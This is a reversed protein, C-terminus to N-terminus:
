DGPSVPYPGDQFHRMPILLAGACVTAYDTHQPWDMKAILGKYSPFKKGTLYPHHDYGATDMLIKAGLAAMAAREKREKQERTSQEARRKREEPSAQPMVPAQGDWGNEKALHYLTAITIGGTPKCSRWVARADASKYRDSQRSWTDWMTFGAEGRDSKIAMAITVWTERDDAPISYLAARLTDTM